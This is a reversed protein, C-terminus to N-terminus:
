GRCYKVPVGNLPEISYLYNKFAEFNIQPVSIQANIGEHAVYIRGFVKLANLSKYLDDRFNEPGRIPFYHYFSITTRPETEETYVNKLNRTPLCSQTISGNKSIKLVYAQRVFNRLPAFIFTILNAGVLTLHNITSRRIVESQNNINGGVVLGGLLGGFGVKRGGPRKEMSILPLWMLGSYNSFIKLDVLFKWM